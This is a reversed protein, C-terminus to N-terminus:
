RRGGDGVQVQVDPSAPPTTPLVHTSAFLAAAADPPDLHWLSPSFLEISLPGDYGAAALDVALQRYDSIGTGPLCRITDGMAQPPTAAPIDCVQVFAIRGHLCPQDALTTGAAYLHCVDLLVGVDAPRNLEELLGALAVPGAIFPHEGRLDPGPDTVAIFEVALGIGHCAARTALLDLRELALQRAHDPPLSTSPNVVVAARRCGLAAAVDLRHALGPLTATFTGADVLLPAPLVPGAPIIGSFQEVTVGSREIWATLATLGGLDAALACAQQISVEVATFGATHSVQVFEALSTGWRYCAPNVCAHM